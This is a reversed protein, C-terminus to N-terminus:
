QAQINLNRADHRSCDVATHDPSRPVRGDVLLQLWASSPMTIRWKCHIKDYSQNKKPAGSSTPVFRGAAIRPLVL